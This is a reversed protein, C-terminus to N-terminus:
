IIREKKLYKYVFYFVIFGFGYKVIKNDIVPIPNILKNEAVVPSTSEPKSKEVTTITKGDIVEHYYKKTWKHYLGCVLLNYKTHYATQFNIVAEVFQRLADTEGLAALKLKPYNLVVYAREAADTNLADDLMKETIRM